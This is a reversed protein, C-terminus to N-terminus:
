AVKKKSKARNKTARTGYGDLYAERPNAYRLGDDRFAAGLLMITSGPVIRTQSIGSQCYRREEWEQPTLKPTPEWPAHYNARGSLGGIAGSGGFNCVVGSDGFRKLYGQLDDIPESAAAIVAALGEIFNHGAPLSSIAIDARELDAVQSKTLVAMEFVNVTEVSDMVRVSGLTAVLLRAADLTTVKPASRGRGGKTRLGAVVLNRDHETVTKESVDLAIAMAKVLQGPTM